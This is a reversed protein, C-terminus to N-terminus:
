GQTGDLHLYPMERLQKRARGRDAEAANFVGSASTQQGSVRFLGSGMLAIAVIVAKRNM